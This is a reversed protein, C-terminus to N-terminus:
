VKYVKGHKGEGLVKFAVKSVSAEANHLVTSPNSSDSMQRSGSTSCSHSPSISLNSKSEKGNVFQFSPSSPQHDSILFRFHGYGWERNTLSHASMYEFKRTECSGHLISSSYFRNIRDRTNTFCERDWWVEWIRVIECCPLRCCLMNFLSEVAHPFDSPNSQLSDSCLMHSNCGWLNRTECAVALFVLPRWVQGCRVCILSITM